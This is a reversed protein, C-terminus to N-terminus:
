LSIGQLSKEDCAIEQLSRVPYFDGTSDRGNAAKGQVEQWSSGILMVEGTSKMEPGLLIKGFREIPFIPKKMFILGKFDINPVIMENKLLIRICLEIFDIGLAKCLFPLTRSGRPNVELPIVKDKTIAFQVNMVGKIDLAKSLHQACLMVHDKQELTLRVSPIYTSSDGSHVGCPEIQELIAPIFVQSGDTLCDVDLELAEHLFEEILALSSSAEQPLLSMEHPGKIVYIGRGGLVFSPRVILPYSLDLSPIDREATYFGKPAPINLKSLLKAFRGRDECLEITSSSIGILNVGADELERALNIANQGGFQLLVGEPNEKRVIELIDEASIAAFYLRSAVDADTSVTEPNCNIMIAKFGLSEIASIASVCLYDFEIGQGIRTAGSGIIIIRRGQLMTHECLGFYSPYYAEITSVYQAASSDCRKFSPHIGYTCRLARIEKEEKGFFTAIMLDCFGVKKLHVLGEKNLKSSSLAKVMQEMQFLFWPDIYTKEYLSDIRDGRFIKFFITELRQSSSLDKDQQLPKEVCAMAKLLAESFCSGFAMAEGVSQMKTSLKDQIHPFKEFQFKPIKVVVYDITPEYFAPLEPCSLKNWIEDLTYGVSLKASIFAIPYCVAKSALASSRSVRPNMEIVVIEETIPHVAFQVNAGGSRMGVAKVVCFAMSRMKQYVKDSLTLSPSVTISDGTHIGLPDINEISCVAVCQGKSDIVVEIEFEKWGILAEDLIVEEASSFAKSCCAILEEQTYIICSALGGLSFSSRFLVPYKMEEMCCKVQHMSAVRYSTPAKIGRKQVITYFLARDEANRIVEPNVGLIELSYRSLIGSDSLQLALNLATQGGFTALIACPREKEIIKEVYGIELPEVYTADCLKHDTMISAPNSNILIVRYGEEKLAKCAQVGAYDFECAQGIIIPGSGIVLISKLDNRRPM